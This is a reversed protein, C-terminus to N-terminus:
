QRQAPLAPISRARKERNRNFSCNQPPKHIIGHTIVDNHNAAAMGTRLSRQCRGAGAAFGQQQGVVGIGNTHHRAVRGDAPNAFAVQYFFDICQAASHRAGGVFGTDLEANKVAAFARRYTCGASLGVTRQVARRDTMNHFVLGIQIDELGGTVVQNGLAVANAGGDTAHHGVGIHTNVRGRHHQGGTCEKASKDVDTHFVVATATGTIRRRNRQGFTQAFHRKVNAAQFGTRRRTDIRTTDVERHHLHLRAIRRQRHHGKHTRHVFVRLLHVAVNGVGILTGVLNDAIVEIARRHIGTHDFPDARTVARRNFIFDGAESIFGAMLHKNLRFTQVAVFEVRVADGGTQREVYLQIKDVADTTKFISVDCTGTVGDFVIVEIRLIQLM